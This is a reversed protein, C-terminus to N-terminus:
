NERDDGIREETLEHTCTSKIKEWEDDELREKVMEWQDVISHWLDPEEDRLEPRTFFLNLYDERIEHLKMREETTLM